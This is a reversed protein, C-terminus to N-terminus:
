LLGRTWDFVAVALGAAAALFLMILAIGVVQAVVMADERDFM